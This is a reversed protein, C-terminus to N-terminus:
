EVLKELDMSELRRLIRDLTAREEDSLRKLLAEEYALALPVIERYIKEGAASLALVSRRRDDPAIHREVRGKARLRAIARSVAVKDLAGREAVETASIDPTEGLIAMCRWEPISLDFRESYLRAITRSIRNSLTALRYPLFGPLRLAALAEANPM